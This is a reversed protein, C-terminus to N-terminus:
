VNLVERILIDFTRSSIKEGNNGKLALECPMVGTTNFPPLDIRFGDDTKVGEVEDDKTYFTMTRNTNNVKVNFGRSKTDGKAITFVKSINLQFDIDFYYKKFDM